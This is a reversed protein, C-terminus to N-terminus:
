PPSGSFSTQASSVSAVIQTSHVPTSSHSRRLGPWTSLRTASITPPATRGAHPAADAANKGPRERDPGRAKHAQDGAKRSIAQEVDNRPREEAGYWQHDGYGPQPPM